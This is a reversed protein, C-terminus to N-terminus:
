SGVEDYVDIIRSMTERQSFHLHAYDHNARGIEVLERGSDSRLALETMRRMGKALAPPSGAPVIVNGPVRAITDTIGFVDTSVIPLRAAMAELIAYSFGEYLSPLVFVDFQSLVEYVDSRWGLLGIREALGNVRIEERTQGLLEGDGAIQLRLPTGPLMHLLHSFAEVLQGPAKQASFRMISGFTLPREDTYEQQGRPTAFYRFIDDDLGNNVVTVRDAPVLKLKLVLQREDESVAIIKSTALQGLVREIITYIKLKASPLEPSAMILSHPTYVVPEGAVRGALRAVAGGKSSHGHIVEFPGERKILRMLQLVGVLDSALSMERGVKLPFFRIGTQKNSVFRRFAEDTRYPSYAVTVEHGHAALFASLGRVHRGVGAGSAEIVQLIRMRSTSNM